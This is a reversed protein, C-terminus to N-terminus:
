ALIVFVIWVTRIVVVNHRYILVKTDVRDAFIALWNSQIFSLFFLCRETLFFELILCFLLVKHRFRRNAPVIEEVLLAFFPHCRSLSPCGEAPGIFFAYLILKINIEINVNDSFRGTIDVPGHFEAIKHAKEM